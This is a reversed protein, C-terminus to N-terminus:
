MGGGGGGLTLSIGAAFPILTTSSSGLYRGEIWFRAKDNLRFALGVAGTYGFENETGELPELADDDTRFQNGLIGAGALVYPSVKADEGGFSYGLAGMFAIINTKDKANGTNNHSNSGFLGEAELFLGRSGIDIGIGGQLLWGTKAEFNPPSPDPNTKFDGVPFSPGGGFFINPQAEARSTVATMALAGLVMPVAFRRM